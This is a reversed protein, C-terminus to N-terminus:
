ACHQVTKKKFVQHGFDLIIENLGAILEDSLLTVNDYIQQYEFALPFRYLNLSTILMLM